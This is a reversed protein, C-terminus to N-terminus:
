IVVIFDNSSTASMYLDILKSLNWTPEHVKESASRIQIIFDM